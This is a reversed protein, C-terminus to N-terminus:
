RAPIAELPIGLLHAIAEQPRKMVNASLQLLFAIARTFHPTVALYEYGTQILRAAAYRTARLLREHSDARQLGMASAYTRWFTGIANHMTELPYRASELFQEPAGDGLDPNSFLWFSLYNSFVSGVDWCPDGISAGEWDIIKLRKAKGGVIETHVICNDWKIDHHILTETRWEQRLSELLAPLESSQQIARVLTLNADSIERLVVSPPRAISLIWPPQDALFPASSRRLNGAPNKAHLLGLLLGLQGAITPGFIGRRAHYQRFDQAGQMLELILIKRDDDFGFCAPLYPAGGNAHLYTYVAGEHAITDTGQIGIGQKVLYSPGSACIVKFNRNRRSADEVRVGARVAVESTILGKTLLYCLTERESLM